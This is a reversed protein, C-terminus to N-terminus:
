KFFYVLIEGSTVLVSSLGILERGAALTISGAAGTRAYQIGPSAALVADALVVIVLFGGADATITGQASTVRQKECVGFARYDTVYM